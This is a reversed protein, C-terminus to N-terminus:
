SFFFESNAVEELNLSGPIPRPDLGEKVEPPLRDAFSGLVDVSYMEVFAPKVCQTLFLDMDAAHVGFSDHVMGFNRLGASLGRVIAMRLHTADMSHVFNPAVALSMDKPDLSDNESWFVLQVRGDLYTEVLNKKEEPRFHIAKFGDPTVWEMRKSYANGEQGNAWKAYARASDTLWKMAEKGKVVTEDIAQWICQALLTIRQTHEENVESNWPCPYGDKIREAVADRTYSLCSSFTGAYPVVMVQRKTTKRNIGFKILDQAIDSGNDMLMQIVRDAVDQYIDQRPLGPVLNVSRGGVEDRLMASYHQLGSCTADVPVVMHSVFGYGTNWFEHWELCFRLFQFPESAETWRLDSKPNSATSFILEENEEVWNVREQLSVKDNGYANAGAIALWAAQEADEVPKGEAFELLSKCYDPGQPNLFAPLPYARGRSDLNHPFYLAKFNRYQKAIIITSLVALRKSIIERNENHILFCVKNHEKTIEEDEGYGVPAPPLPKADALPLGAVDGGRDFMAWQLVDLMEKNVRWPTEQLANVAPLIQSLDADVLRSVDRSRSGKILPYKKVKKTSLYGGRWLYEPTWPKPQVVMPKYLTWDLVRKEMNAEFDALLEPRAHVWQSSKQADILGTTDRFLVLLAYGIELKQKQDWQQWEIQEANFYNLITRKRWQRPYTRKDFQKFLKKLLNKRNKDEAFFRLRVEDHIVDAARICLSVRKVSRKHSLALVNFLGKTFLYAITESKLGCQALHVAARIHRVGKSKVKTREMFADVANVFANTSSRVYASGMKSESWADRKFSKANDSTQRTKAEEYSANELELQTDVMNVNM